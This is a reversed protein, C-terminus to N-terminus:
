KGALFAALAHVRDAVAAPPEHALGESAALWLWALTDDPLDRRVAGAAGARHLADVLALRLQERAWALALRATKDDRGRLWHRRLADALPAAPARAAALADVVGRVDGGQARATV